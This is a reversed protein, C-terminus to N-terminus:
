LWIVDTGDKRRKTVEIVKKIETFVKLLYIFDLVM